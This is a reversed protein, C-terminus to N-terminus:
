VLFELQEEWDQNWLVGALTQNLAKKWKRQGFALKPAHTQKWPLPSPFPTLSPLGADQPAPVLEGFKEWNNEALDERM